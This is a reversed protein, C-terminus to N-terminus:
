VMFVMCKRNPYSGPLTDAVDLVFVFVFVCVFVFVFVFVFVIVFVFHEFSGDCAINKLELIDSVVGVIVFVIVFVFVFVCM